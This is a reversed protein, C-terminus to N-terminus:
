RFGSRKEVYFRIGKGDRRPRMSFLKVEEGTDRQVLITYLAPATKKFVKELKVDFEDAIPKSFDFIKFDGRLLQVLAVKDGSAYAPLVSNIKELYNIEEAETDPDRRRVVDAFIKDFTGGEGFLADRNTKYNEDYEKELNPPVNYGFLSNLITEIDKLKGGKQQLQKTSQTKLSFAGTHLNVREGDKIMFINIDAKTGKQDGVGDAVLNLTEQSGAYTNKLFETYFEDNAFAIAAAVTGPAYQWKDLNDLDYFTANDLGIVLNLVDEAVKMNLTRVERKKDGAVIFNEKNQAIFKKMDDVNIKQESESDQGKSLIFKAALAYALVGEAFNGINGIGKATSGKKLQLVFPTKNEFKGSAFLGTGSKTTIKIKGQEDTTLDFQPSLNLKKFLRDRIQTGGTNTVTIRGTKPALANTPLVPNVLVPFDGFEDAETAEDKFVEIIKAAVQKLSDSPAESLAEMILKDLESVGIRKAEKQVPRSKSLILQELAKM